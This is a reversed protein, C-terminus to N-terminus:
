NTWVTVAQEGVLLSHQSSTLVKEALEEETGRAFTKPNTNLVTCSDNRNSFRQFLLYERYVLVTNESKKSFIM